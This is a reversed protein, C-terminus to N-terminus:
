REGDCSARLDRFEAALIGMYVLALRKGQLRFEDRLVGERRFGANEYVRIARTNETHVTLWVKHLGMKEFAESLALHIATTAAGKGRAKEDGVYISLRASCIHTEIRDLIVNGVHDEDLLIAFARVESSEAANRIWSATYELSPERRLGLNDRVEPERVWRYTRAAHMPRLPTIRVRANLSLERNTTAAPGLPEEPGKNEERNM